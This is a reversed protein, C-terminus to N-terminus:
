VLDDLRGGFGQAIKDFFADRVERYTENDIDCVNRGIILVTQAVDSNGEIKAVAASISRPYDAFVKDAVNELENFDMSPSVILCRRGIVFSNGKGVQKELLDKEESELYGLHLDEIGM